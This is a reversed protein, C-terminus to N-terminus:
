NELEDEYWINEDFYDEIAQGVQERMWEHFKKPNASNELFAEIVNEFFIGRYSLHDIIETSDMDAYADDKAEKLTDYEVYNYVYPM